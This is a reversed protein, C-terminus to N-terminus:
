FVLTIIAKGCRFLLTLPPMATGHSPLQALSSCLGPRYGPAYITSYVLPKTTTQKEVVISVFM